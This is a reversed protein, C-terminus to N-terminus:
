LILDQKKQDLKILQIYMNKVLPNMIFKYFTKAKIFCYVENWLGYFAVKADCNKSLPYRKKYEDYIKFAKGTLNNLQFLDYERDAFISNLPDIVGTIQGKRNVMINLLNLDGHILSAEKVPEAFIDEFKEYAKQMAQYIYPKLKHNETLKQTTKYIDDVWPKYYDLWNTYVPKEIPGFKDSTNKHMDLLIDVISAAFAEKRKKSYLLMNTKLFASKGEIYEMCLADINGEEGDLTFYVKPIKINTHERIFTLDYAEKLHMGKIKSAKFIVIRPEKDQILKYVLGFSGGGIYKVASVQSSFHKEVQKKAYIALKNNNHELNDM